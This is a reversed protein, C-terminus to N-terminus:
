AVDGGAQMLLFRTYEDVIADDAPDTRVNAQVCVLQRRLAPLVLQEAECDMPAHETRNDNWWQIGRITEETKAILAPISRLLRQRAAETHDIM